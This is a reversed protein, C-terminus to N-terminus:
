YWARLNVSVHRGPKPGFVPDTHDLLNELGVVVEAGERHGPLRVPQRVGASLIVAGPATDDILPRESLADGRVFLTTNTAEVVIRGTVDISHAPRLPLSAAGDDAGCVVVDAPCGSLDLAAILYQWTADVGVRLQVPTPLKVNRMRLRFTLATTLARSANDYTFVPIGDVNDGSGVEAILNELMNAGLDVGAEVPIVGFLADDAFVLEGRLGTSQEPLLTPNGEVIYGLESHDFRLFREEFSPLRFGRGVSARFSFGVPLEVRASLKPGFAVTTDAGSGDVGSGDVGGGDVSGDVLFADVRAGPLLSLFSTPRWLAEAYASATSRRGGGPLTDDGDGNERTAREQLVVAGISASLERGLPGLLEPDDVFIVDARVEGRAEDKIANTRVVPATPCPADFAGGCFAPAVAADGRAQKAFRHTFRDIRLDASLVLPQPFLAVTPRSTATMSWALEANDAVDRFPAGAAVTASSASTTQVLTTRVDWLRSPTIILDAGVSSQRRDPVDAKGDPTVPGSLRGGRDFGPMDQLSLDLRLAAPGFAGHGHAGVARWPKGGPLVQLGVDVEAGARDVFAVIGDDDDDDDSAADAGPKKTIINVVGALAESGYLASMPGRVIEIREISAASVPLRSVDVRNNVKGNVPRGDILILVHRGDLGDINVESGLGLSSNVQLGGQEELVDALTRAGLERIDDGDIVDARIIKKKRDTDLRSGTITLEKAPALHDDDLTYLVDGQRQYMVGDIEVYDGDDTGPPPPPGVSAMLCVAVLSWMAAHHGLAQMRGLVVADAVHLGRAFTVCAAWFVDLREADV